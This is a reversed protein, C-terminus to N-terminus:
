VLKVHYERAVLGDDRGLRLVDVRRFNDTRYFGGAFVPYVFYKEVLKEEGLQKAPVNGYDGNKKVVNLSSFSTFTNKSDIGCEFGVM